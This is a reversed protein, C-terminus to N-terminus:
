RWIQLAPEPGVTGGTNSKYKTENPFWLGTEGTSTDKSRVSLEQQGGERQSITKQKKQKENEDKM